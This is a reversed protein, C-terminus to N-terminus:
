FSFDRRKNEAAFRVVRERWDDHKRALESRNDDPPSTWPYGTLDELVQVAETGLVGGTLRRYDRVSRVAQLRTLTGDLLGSWVQDVARLFDLRESVTPPTPPMYPNNGIIDRKLGDIVAATEAASKALSPISQELEDMTPSMGKTARVWVQDLDRLRLLPLYDLSDVIPSFAFRQMSRLENVFEISDAHLRPGDLSDLVSLGELLALRGLAGYDTLRKCGEISLDRLNILDGLPALNTLATAGGLELDRLAPMESLVSLDSYDGWKLTLSAIQTQSRLSNFLRAPTRSVFRLHTIPTPGSEFLEIWGNLVRSARSTPVSLQTALVIVRAEGGYEAAEVLTPVSSDSWWAM